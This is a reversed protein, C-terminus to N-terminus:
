RRRIAPEGEGLKENVEAPLFLGLVDKIGGILIRHQKVMDSISM